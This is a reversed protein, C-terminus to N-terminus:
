VDKLRELIIQTVSQTKVEKLLGEEFAVKIQLRGIADLCKLVDELYVLRMTEGKKNNPV